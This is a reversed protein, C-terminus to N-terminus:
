LKEKMANEPNNSAFNALVRQERKLSFHGTLNMWRFNPLNLVAARALAASENLYAAPKAVAFLLTKRAGFAIVDSEFDILSEKTRLM